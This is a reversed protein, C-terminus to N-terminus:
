QLKITFTDGAKGILAIKGKAPLVTTNNKSVTTFNVCADNEDYVAYAANEPLSVVLTKGQADPGIAYYQAFGEEGIVYTTTKGTLEPISDERVSVMDNANVYEAGDRVFFELDTVDRFKLTNVANNEDVIKIGGYAFGNSFDGNLKMRLTDASMFYSQATPKESVVYYKKGARVSWVDLVQRSIADPEIRQCDFVIADLIGVGPLVVHQNKQLYLNGDEQWTFQVSKSGDESQFVQNGTYVYRLGESGDLPTVTLTGDKVAINVESVANAYLGSYAELDKPMDAKVPATLARPPTIQRIIGKELLLEQLVSAAFAYNVSSSGGASVVAMAIDLEPITVLSSHFLLTDGGKTMAQIGYDGFPSSHVTDWGLGYGLLNDGKADVWMGKKYEESQMLLTAQESLLEPRKGMLVRAFRCLDEATSYLGGTGLVNVTDDPLQGEYFPVYVKALRKAKDFDDQSTKTNELSLPKTFREALFDTYPMDSVREVLIELLSFGDNCYESFEGPAAKLRQRALKTLLTDYTLTDNDDFLLANALSSGYLGSSHNMLMRPTIEKYREDAMRFEPIYTTLPQDIDILGQDRLAMAAATVFMKSTSGIGYMDDRVIGRNGTKDFVGSGGSLRINGHDIIAYQASTAGHDSVIVDAIQRAKEALSGTSEMQAPVFLAIMLVMCLVMSFSRQLLKKM